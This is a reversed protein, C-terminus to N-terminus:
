WSSGNSCGENFNSLLTEYKTSCLHNGNWTSGSLLTCPTLVPGVQTRYFGPPGRTPGTFWAMLLLMHTLHYLLPDGAARFEHLIIQSKSIMWIMLYLSLCNLVCNVYQIMIQILLFWKSKSASWEYRNNLTNSLYRQMKSEAFILFWLFLTLFTWVVIKMGCSWHKNGHPMLM